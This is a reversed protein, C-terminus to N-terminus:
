NSRSNSRSTIAQEVLRRLGGTMEHVQEPRMHCYPAKSTLLLADLHCDVMDKHYPAGDKIADLIECVNNSIISVLEFGMTTGVDRLQCSRRHAEEIRSVDDPHNELLRIAVTLDQLERDLWVAFEPKLEEINSQARELAKDRAVGGPRRAMKQFRTEVSFVKAEEESEDAM